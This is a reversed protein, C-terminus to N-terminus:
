AEAFYSWLGAFTADDCYISFGTDSLNIAGIRSEGVAYLNQHTATSKRYGRLYNTTSINDYDYTSTIHNNSDVYRCVSLRKPRFGIDVSTFASNNTITVTGYAKKPEKRTAKIGYVYYPRSTSTTKQATIHTDDVYAYTVTQYSASGTGGTVFYGNVNNRKFYDVESVIQLPYTAQTSPIYKDSIIDSLSVGIYAYNSLSDNLTITLATTAASTGQGLPVIEYDTYKDDTAINVGIIQLPILWGTNSTTTGVQYASVFQVTTSNVYYYPRVYAGNSASIMGMTGAGSATSNVQYKKFEDVSLIDEMSLDYNTAYRYVLKIYKYNDLSDSLTVNQAAFNSSPSPNTWLVKETVKALGGGKKRIFALQESM